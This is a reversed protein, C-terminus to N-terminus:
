QENNIGTKRRKLENKANDYEEKAELHTSQTFNAFRPFIIEFVVTSIIITLMYHNWFPTRFIYHHFCCFGATTILLILYYGPKSFFVMFFGGIILILRLVFVSDNKLDNM